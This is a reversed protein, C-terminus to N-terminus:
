KKVKLMEKFNHRLDIEYKSNFILYLIYDYKDELNCKKVLGRLKSEIKKDTPKIGNTNQYFLAAMQYVLADIYKEEKKLIKVQVDRILDMIEANESGRGLNSLYGWARDFEGKKYYLEALTVLHPKGRFCLGENFIIDEYVNILNTFDGTKKSLQTEKNIRDIQE